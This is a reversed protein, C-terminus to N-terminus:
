RWCSAYSGAATPVTTAMAASSRICLYAHLAALAQVAPLRCVQLCSCGVGTHLICLCFLPAACAGACGQVIMAHHMDDPACTSGCRALAELRRRCEQLVAPLRRVAPTVTSSLGQPGAASTCLPEIGCGAAACSCAGLWDGSLDTQTSKNAASLGQPGHSESSARPSRTRSRASGCARCRTAGSIRSTPM